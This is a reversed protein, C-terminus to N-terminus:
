FFLFPLLLSLLFSLSLSVILLLLLLALGLGLLLEVYETNLVSQCHGVSGVALAGRGVGPGEVGGQDELGEYIFYIQEFGFLQGHFEQAVVFEYKM